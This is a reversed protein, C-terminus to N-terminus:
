LIGDQYDQVDQLDQGFSKGINLSEGMMKARNSSVEQPPLTM